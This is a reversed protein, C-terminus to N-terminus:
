EFHKVIKQIQASWPLLTELLANPPTKGLYRIENLLLSLYDFPDLDYTKATEVMTYVIASNQAGKPTDCFLWNKRGVVFPRIANEAPNNSIDVEGHELFANLYQKKRAYTVADELKSGAAPDLKDVWAWYADLLPEAKMERVVERQFPTQDAWKRELAFLKNCYEYGVAAKSTAATAGQPMAERWKRRMHAWCGCRVAHPVKEYGAYGDTILCGNFDKLLAAPHKGSRDPQYEFFRIQQMSYWGSVYVWMRSESTNAKGEEKHVQVVTEDAHIM